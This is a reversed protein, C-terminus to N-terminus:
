DNLIQCLVPNSAMECTATTEDCLLGGVCRETPTCNAGEVIEARCRSSSEDSECFFGPACGFGLCAEGEGPKAVCQSTGQGEDCRLHFECSGPTCESGLAGLPKCTASEDFAMRCNLDKGCANTDATCDEGASLHGHQIRCDPPDSLIYDRDGCELSAYYQLWDSACVGDFLRGEAKRREYEGSAALKGKAVCADLDAFPLSCDCTFATECMKRIEREATALYDAENIEDAIGGGATGADDGCGTTLAPVFVGVVLAGVWRGLYKRHM